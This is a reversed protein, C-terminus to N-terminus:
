KDKKYECIDEINCNLIKCLMDLTHTNINSNKKLRTIQGPSFGYEKILKYQTINKNKMTIWLKDFVIM